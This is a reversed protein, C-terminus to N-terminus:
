IVTASFDRLVVIKGDDDDSDHYWVGSCTYFLKKMANNDLKVMGVKTDSIESIHLWPDYQNELVM